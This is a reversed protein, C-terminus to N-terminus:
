QALASLPVPRDPAMQRAIAFMLAEGGNRDPNARPGQTAAVAISIGREPLMGISASYGGFMPSQMLWPGSVLLGMGFHATETNKRCIGPPCAAPNGFGVLRADTQAAFSTPSLLRGRMIAEASIRLDTIDTTMVAGAPLTWSPNWLTSEEYGGRESTYARLVPSPIDPKVSSATNRLRLPDLIRERLVEALPKGTVKEIVADLVLYNTHSYNWNTGPPYILEKNFAYSMLGGATWERLPDAKSASLFEPDAAYDPYGSTNNVLMELTVSDAAPLGPLWKGVKDSLSLRNEDALQLLVTAMYTMAVAGNRFHMATTAPTGPASEGLATSYILKGDVSVQIIASRLDLEQMVTCAITTIPEVKAQGPAQSAPALGDCREQTAVQETSAFKGGCAALGAGVGALLLMQRIRFFFNNM